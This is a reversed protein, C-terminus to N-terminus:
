DAVEVEVKAYDKSKQIPSFFFGEEINSVNELNVPFAKILGNDIVYCSQSPCSTVIGLSLESYANKGIVSGSRSYNPHVLSQHIHGMIAYDIPGYKGRYYALQKEPLDRPRTVGHTVLIKMGDITVVREVPSGWDAFKIKPFHSKLMRDLIFDFNNIMAEATFDFLERCRCENGSVSIVDTVPIYSDVTSIIQSFLEFAVIVAQARSMENTLFESEIRRDSNSANDGTLLVVCRRAGFAMGIRISEEAFKKLRKSVVVSNITNGPLSVTESVHCDSLQLILTGDGSLNVKSVKDLTKAVPVLSMLEEFLASSSNDKRIVKRVLAREVRQTDQLRQIQKAQKLSVKEVEEELPESNELLIEKVKERSMMVPGVRIRKKDAYGTTDHWTVGVKREICGDVLRFNELIFEVNNM